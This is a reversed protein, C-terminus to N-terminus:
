QVPTIQKKQRVLRQLEKDKQEWVSLSTANKIEPDSLVSNQWQSIRAIEADVQLPDVFITDVKVFKNLFKQYDANINDIFNQTAAMKEIKGTEAKERSAQQVLADIIGNKSYLRDSVIMLKMDNVVTTDLVQIKAVTGEPLVEPAQEQGYSLTAALVVMSLMFIIKKM